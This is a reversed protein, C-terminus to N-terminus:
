VLLDKYLGEFEQLTLINVKPFKIKKLIQFHRDNSVICESNGALACDVFKNDDRDAEILNWKYSPNILHVNSLLTLLDLINETYRFSYRELLKENYELIIETSLLLIFKGNIASDIIWRWPSFEPLCVILTNTDLVVKIKKM